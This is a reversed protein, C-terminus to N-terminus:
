GVGGWRLCYDLEGDSPGGNRAMISVERRWGPHPLGGQKFISTQMFCNSRDDIFATTQLCGPHLDRQKPIENRERNEPRRFLSRVM